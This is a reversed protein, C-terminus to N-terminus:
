NIAKLKPIINRCLEPWKVGSCLEVVNFLTTLRVTYTRKDSLTKNM